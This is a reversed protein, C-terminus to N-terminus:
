RGRLLPKRRGTLWGMVWEVPGTGVFRWW